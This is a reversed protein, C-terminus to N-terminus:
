QATEPASAVFRANGSTVIKFQQGRLLRIEKGRTYLIYGTGAAAGVIAGVGAGVPGGLLGITAGAGAAAGVKITDEKQTSKGALGGEQDVNRVNTSTPDTLEIIQAELNAVTQNPLRMRDFALQLEARGKIRGPRKVRTLHGEIVAGEYIAPEIVRMRFGDDRVNSETSLANLLEVKLVTNGPLNIESLPRASTAGTTTTNGTNNGSNVNGTNGAPPPATTNNGAPRQKLAPPIAPNFSRRAYGEEYGKSYGQQYGDRYSNRPGHKTEYARTADLYDPNNRFEAPQNDNIDRFGEQYGDSYGTRYGRELAARAANPATTQARATAPLSVVPLAALLFILCATGLGQTKKM